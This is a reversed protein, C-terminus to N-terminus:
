LHNVPPHRTATLWASAGMDILGDQQYLHFVLYHGNNLSPDDLQTCLNSVLCVCVCVWFGRAKLLVRSGISLPSTFPSLFGPFRAPLPLIWEDALRGHTLVCRCYGGQKLDGFRQVRVSPGM